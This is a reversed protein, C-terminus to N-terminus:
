KKGAAKPRRPKAPPKFVVLAPGAHPFGPGGRAAAAQMMGRVAGHDLDTAARVAVRRVQTSAGELIGRPDPLTKDFYLRVDKASVALAVLAERGHESKGFSVVVSHAYADVLEHSVPIAVRLTALCAEALAATAPAFRSLLAALPAASDLADKTSANGFAPPV